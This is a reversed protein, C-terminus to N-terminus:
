FAWVRKATIPKVEKGRAALDSAAKHALMLAAYADVKKPSDPSEKSFSVGFLNERRRANM